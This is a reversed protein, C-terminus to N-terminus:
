HAIVCFQIQPCRVIKSRASAIKNHQFLSTLLVQLNDYCCRSIAIHLIHRRKKLLLSIICAHTNKIKLVIGKLLIRKVIHENVM